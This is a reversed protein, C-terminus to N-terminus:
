TLKGSPVVSVAVKMVTTIMMTRIEDQAEEDDGEDRYSQCDCLSNINKIKGSFLTRGFGVTHTVNNEGCFKGHFLSLYPMYGLFEGWSELKGTMRFGLRLRAQSVWLTACSGARLYWGSLPTTNDRFVQSVSHSVVPHPGKLSTFTPKYVIVFGGNVRENTLVHCGLRLIPLEQPPERPIWLRGPPGRPDTGTPLKPSSWTM